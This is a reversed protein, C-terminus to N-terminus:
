VHVTAAPKAPLKYAIHAQDIPHAMGRVCGKIFHALRGLGRPRRLRLLESMPELFCPVAAEYLLVVLAGPRGAKLPKVYAAGLGEWDRAALTRAERWTRFGYHVVAVENTECVWQGHAIARVAIDADEASPFLGGAGLAEDFGGIALIPDRRIGLGAGIGRARCKGWFSKVLVRDTRKYAPIFGASADHEGEIVNCFLVTVQPDRRFNAEIVHLWNEPVTCDDDTFAIIAARAHRMGINRARGLGQTPTPLYIFRPDGRFQALAKATEDNTSQDVVILEFARHDNALISRVTDVASAGRNRTCVIATITPVDAM